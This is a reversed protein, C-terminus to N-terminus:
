GFCCVSACAMAISIFMKCIQLLFLFILPLGVTCVHIEVFNLTKFNATMKHTHRISCVM